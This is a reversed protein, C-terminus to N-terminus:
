HYTPDEDGDDAEWDEIALPANGLDWVLSQYEVGFWERFLKLSLKQPWMTEDTLWDGLMHEFFMRWHKEVWKVADETGDAVDDPILFAENDDRLDDLTMPPLPNPDASLLWDLFPQKHVLIILHRNISFQPHDTM